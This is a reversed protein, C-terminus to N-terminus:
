YPVIRRFTHPSVRGEVKNKRVEKVNIGSWKNRKVKETSEQSGVTVKTEKESSKKSGCFKGNNERVDKGRSSAM